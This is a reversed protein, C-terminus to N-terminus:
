PGSVSARASCRSHSRSCRGHGSATLPSVAAFSLSASIETRTWGFTEEIPVIFLGFAYQSVGVAIATSSFVVAIICTGRM